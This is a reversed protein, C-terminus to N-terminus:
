RNRFEGFLRRLDDKRGGGDAESLQHHTGALAGCRNMAAGYVPSPSEEVLAANQQTSQDIQSVALSVQGIGTTQENTSSSIECILDAM